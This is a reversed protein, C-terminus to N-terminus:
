DTVVVSAKMSPHPACHYDFTGISSFTHSFTGGKSLSKSQLESGSDSTVTHVAADENTWTVTTGKKVTLTAPSYAFDKIAVKTALSDEATSPNSTSAQEPSTTQSKDGNDTSNSKEGSRMVLVGAGIAMLIVLTVILGKKM